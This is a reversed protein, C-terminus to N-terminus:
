TCPYEAKLATYITNIAKESTIKKKMHAANLYGLLQRSSILKPAGCLYNTVDILALEQQNKSIAYSVGSVWILTEKYNSDEFQFEVVPTWSDAFVRCPIIFLVVILIQFKM